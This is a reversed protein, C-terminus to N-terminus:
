KKSSFSIKPEEGKFLRMINSSHRYWIVAALIVLAAFLDQRGFLWAILPTLASAALAAASSMKTVFASVLWITLFALGLRWDFAFIVGIFTAVGKGGLFALWVPYLHGAIAGAAAALFVNEAGFWLAAFVPVFGKLADFLLTLAAILKNGTRLVNTAGINGSGTKRIDGLGALQTLILGFPISGCVYGAFFWIIYPTLSV